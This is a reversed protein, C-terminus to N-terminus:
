PMGFIERMETMLSLDGSKRTLELSLDWLGYLGAVVAGIRADLKQIPAHSSPPFTAPVYLAQTWYLQGSPAWTFNTPAPDGAIFFQSKAVDVTEPGYHVLNELRWLVFGQERMFKDVQWFIPQGAYIANFEVEVEVLSCTELTRKAGRLIDLESGQTDIKLVATAGFNIDAVVEDLKRVMMVTTSAPSTCTLGPWGYLEPIPQYVSSCAPESTIHLVQEGSDAALGVALYRVHPPAAQNLRACEAADPEFALIEARAGLLSWRDVVGFRAGVDILRIPLECHSLLREFVDAIDLSM